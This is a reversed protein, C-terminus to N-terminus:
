SVAMRRNYKMWLVKLKAEVWHQYVDAEEAIRWPEWELRPLFWWDPLVLDYAWRMARAEDKAELGPYVGAHYHSLEHAFTCRYRMTSKRIAPNLFIYPGDATECFCGRPFRESPYWVVTIGCTRAIQWLRGIPVPVIM